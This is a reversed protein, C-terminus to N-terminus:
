EGITIPIPPSQLTTLDGESHQVGATLQYTGPPLAYGLRPDCSATTIMLPLEMSEGPALDVTVGLDGMLSSAPASVVNGSEDLITGIAAGSGFTIPSSGDNTLTVTLQAPVVGAASVPEAPVAVDVRLGPISSQEPRDSCVATAMAIPYALAGVTVEIANGHRGVLEGALEEENAALVVEVSGTGGGGISLFRGELERSLTTQLAQAIAGNVAVQCM